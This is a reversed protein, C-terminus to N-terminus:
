ETLMLRGSRLRRTQVLLVVLQAISSSTARNEWLNEGKYDDSDSIERKMPCKAMECKAGLPLNM